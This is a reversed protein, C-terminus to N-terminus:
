DGERALAYDGDDFADAVRSLQATVQDLEREVTAVDDILRDLDIRPNFDHPMSEGWVDLAAQVDLTTEVLQGLSYLKSGDHGAVRRKRAAWAAHQASIKALWPALPDTQPETQM